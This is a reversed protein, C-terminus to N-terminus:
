RTARWTVSLSKPFRNNSRKPEQEADNAAHASTRRRAQRSPQSANDTDILEADHVEITEDPSLHFGRANSAHCWVPITTESGMLWVAEPHQTMNSRLASSKAAKSEGPPSDLQTVIQM